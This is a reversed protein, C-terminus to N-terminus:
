FANFLLTGTRQLIKGCDLMEQIEAIGGIPPFDRHTWFCERNADLIDRNGTYPIEGAISQSHQLETGV